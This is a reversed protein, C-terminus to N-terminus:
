SPLLPLGMLLSGDASRVFRRLGSLVLERSGGSVAWILMERFYTSHVIDAGVLEAMLYAVFQNLYKDLWDQCRRTWLARCQTGMATATPPSLSQGSTDSATRLRSRCLM